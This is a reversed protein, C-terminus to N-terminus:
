KSVIMTLINRDGERKYKVEQVMKKILFIGLGGIKRHDIDLTVDPDAQSLVDFPVGQDSIEITLTKEGSDFCRVRVSGNEGPYAYNCINVLAEEAALEIEMSRKHDFGAKAACGKVFDIFAELNELEAPMTLTQMSPIAKDM